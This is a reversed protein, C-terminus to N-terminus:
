TGEYEHIADIMIKVCNAMIGHVEEPDLKESLVTYNALDAFLVTVIKREGELSSRTTLIKDALFKPTYSHPASYDLHPSEEPKRLDHACKGCFTFEPPNVANCQPCYLELKAACKGCFNMGEPNEFGCKSCKM